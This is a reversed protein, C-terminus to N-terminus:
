GELEDDRDLDCFIVFLGICFFSMWFIFEFETHTM